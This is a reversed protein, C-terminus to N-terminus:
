TTCEYPPFYRTQKNLEMISDIYINYWCKLVCWLFIVSLDIKLVSFSRLPSDGQCFVKKIIIGCLAYCSVKNMFYQSYTSLKIKHECIKPVNKGKKYENSCTKM